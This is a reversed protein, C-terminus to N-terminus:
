RIGERSKTLGCKIKGHGAYKKKNRKIKNKKRRFLNGGTHQPFNFKQLIARSSLYAL